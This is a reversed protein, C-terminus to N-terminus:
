AATVVTLLVDVSSPYGAPADLHTVPFEGAGRWSLLLTGDGVHGDGGLAAQLRELIREIKPHLDRRDEEPFFLTATVSWSEAAADQGTAAQGFPTIRRSVVTVRADPPVGTAPNISNADLWDRVAREVDVHEM